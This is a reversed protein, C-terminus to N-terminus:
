RAQPRALHDKVTDCSVVHTTPASSDTAPTQAAAIGAFGATLSGAIVLGAFLKRIKM